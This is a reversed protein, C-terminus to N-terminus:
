MHHVTMWILMIGANVVVPNTKNTVWTFVDSLLLLDQQCDYLCIQGKPAGLVIVPVLSNLDKHLNHEIFSSIVTTGILQAENFEKESAKGEVICNDGLTSTPSSGSDDPDDNAMLVNTDTNFARVRADPYGHWTHQTGIGLRGSSVNQPHDSTEVTNQFGDHSLVVNCCLKSLLCKTIAFFTDKEKRGKEKFIEHSLKIDGNKLLGLFDLLIDKREDNDPYVNLGALRRVDLGYLATVPIAADWPQTRMSICSLNCYPDFYGVDYFTFMTEDWIKVISAEQM